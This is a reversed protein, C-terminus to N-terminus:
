SAKLSFTEGTKLVFATGDKLNFTTVVTRTWGATASVSPGAARAAGTGTSAAAAANDIVSQNTTAANAAGTGTARSMTASVTGTPARAAGTGTGAVASIQGSAIKFAVYNSERDAGTPSSPTTYSNQTAFTGAPATGLLDGVFTYCDAATQAGTWATAFNTISATWTGSIPVDASLGKLNSFAVILDTQTLTGSLAPGVLAASTAYAKVSTDLPSATALGSYEIIGCAIPKAVTGTVFTITTETGAAVKYWVYCGNGNIDTVANTYGATQLAVTSDSNAWAVLLNNAVATSAFTVTRLGSGDSIGPNEVHQVRAAM